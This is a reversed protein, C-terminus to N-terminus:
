CIEDRMAAFYRVFSRLTYSQSSAMPASRVGDELLPWVVASCLWCGSHVRKRVRVASWGIRLQFLMDFRCRSFSFSRMTFLRLHAGSSSKSSSAHRHPSLIPFKASQMALELHALAITRRFRVPQYSRCATLSLHATFIPSPPTTAKPVPDRKSYQASPRSSTALHQETFSDPVCDDEICCYVICTPPFAVDCKHLLGLM